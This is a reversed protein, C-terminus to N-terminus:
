EDEWLYIVGLTLTVASILTIWRYKPKSLIIPYGIGTKLQPAIADIMRKYEKGKFHVGDDYHGTASHPYMDIWNIPKNAFYKDQFDRTWDHRKATSAAINALTVFPGMWVVRRIGANKLHTLLDEIRGKYKEEDLEQNNGGLAIVAANPQSDAIDNLVGKSIFTKAGWGRKPYSFVIQHGESELLDKIYNFHTESHSDGILAVRM